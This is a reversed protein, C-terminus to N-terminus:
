AAGGSRKTANKWLGGPRDFPWGRGILGADQVFIQAPWDQVCVLYPTPRAGDYCADLRRNYELGSLRRTELCLPACTVLASFVFAGVSGRNLLEEYPM